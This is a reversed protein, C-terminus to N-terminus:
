FLEQPIPDWMSSKEWREVKQCSGVLITRYVKTGLEIMQGILPKDHSLLMAKGLFLTIMNLTKM